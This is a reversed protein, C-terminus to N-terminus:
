QLILRFYNTSPSNVPMVIELEGQSDPVETWSENIMSESSQLIADPNEWSVTVMGDVPGSIRIPGVDAPLLEAERIMEGFTDRPFVYTGSERVYRIHNDQFGAENDAGNISYKYETKRSDGALSEFKISYIGDAAVADGSESSGDDLLEFDFPPSDWGWWTNGAFTGNIYIADSDPDFPTGDLAQGDNMDVTFLIETDDPLAADPSVDNFYRM